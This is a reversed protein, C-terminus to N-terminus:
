AFGFVFRCVFNIKGLFYQMAKKNNSFAINTISETRKPDIVIGYKSILYGLIKGEIVMFVSKEPNLSIKYKHCTEFIQQLNSLHDGRTNTFVMVDDLYVM